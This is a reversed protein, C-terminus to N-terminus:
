DTQAEGVAFTKHPLGAKLQGSIETRQYSEDGM